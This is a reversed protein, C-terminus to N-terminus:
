CIINSQCLIIRYKKRESLSFEGRREWKNYGENIRGQRQRKKFEKRFLGRLRRANNIHMFRLCRKKRGM